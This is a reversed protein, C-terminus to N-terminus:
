FSEKLRIEDLDLNVYTVHEYDVITVERDGVRKVEVHLPLIWTYVDVGIEEM